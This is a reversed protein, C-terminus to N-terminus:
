VVSISVKKNKIVMIKDCFAKNEINHTIHIVSKREEKQIKKLESLILKETDNDVNSTVEDLIWVKKNQLILRTLKIRQKEGTSCCNINKNLCTLFHSLGFKKFYHKLLRMKSEKKKVGYM